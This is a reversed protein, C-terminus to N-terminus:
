GWRLRLSPERLFDSEEPKESISKSVVVAMQYKSKRLYKLFFKFHFQWNGLVLDIHHLSFNENEIETFYEFYRVYNTSASNEQNM